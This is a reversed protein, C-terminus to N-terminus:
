TPLLMGDDSGSAHRIDTPREQISDQSRGTTRNFNVDNLSDRARVRHLSPSWGGAGRDSDSSSGSLSDDSGSSPSSLSDFNVTWTADDLRLSSIVVGICQNQPPERGGLEKLEISSPGTITRWNSDKTQWMHQYENAPDFMFTATLPERIDRKSAFAAIGWSRACHTGRVLLLSGNNKKPM